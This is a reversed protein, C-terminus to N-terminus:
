CQSGWWFPKKSSDSFWKIHIGCDDTAPIALTSAGLAILGTAIGIAAASPPYIFIVISAALVTASVGVGVWALIKSTECSDFYTDFGYWTNEYKSKGVPTCGAATYVMTTSTIM